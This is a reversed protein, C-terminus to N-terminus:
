SKRLEDLVDGMRNAAMIDMMLSERECTIFTTLQNAEHNPSLLISSHNYLVKHLSIVLDPVYLQRLHQNPIVDSDPSDQDLWGGDLIYKLQKSLTSELEIIEEKWKYLDVNSTNSIDSPKSEMVRNWKEVMRLVKILGIHSVTENYSVSEEQNDLLQIIQEVVVIRGLSLFYRILENGRQELGLAPKLRLWKLSTLLHQEDQNAKTIYDLKFLTEKQPPCKNLAQQSTHEHTELLIADMDLGYKEAMRVIVNLEDLDVDDDLNQLFSSYLEIQANKSPLWSCYTTIVLPRFSEDRSNLEIFASLLGIMSTNEEWGLYNLGFVIWTAIFLLRQEQEKPDNSLYLGGEQQNIWGNYLDDLKPVIKNNLIAMQIQHYFRITDNNSEKSLALSAIQDPIFIDKVSSSTICEEVQSNYYIWIVDEWTKCQHLFDKTNGSLAYYLLRGYTGLTENNMIQCVCERWSKREMEMSPSLPADDLIAKNRNIYENVIYNLVSYEDSLDSMPRLDNIRIKLYQQRCTPESLHAEYSLRRRKAFPEVISNVQQELEYEDQESIDGEEVSTKSIWDKLKALQTLPSNNKTSQLLTQILRWTNAECSTSSLEKIFNDLIECPQVTKSIAFIKAFADFLDPNM